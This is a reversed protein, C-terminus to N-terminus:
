HIDSFLLRVFTQTDFGLKMDCHSRCLIKNKEAIYLDNENKNLTTDLKPPSKLSHCDIRYSVMNPTNRTARHTIKDASRDNIPRNTPLDTLHGINLM